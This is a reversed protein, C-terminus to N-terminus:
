EGLREECTLSIRLRGGAEAMTCSAPCLTLERPDEPDDLVYGNGDCAGDDGAITHSTGNPSEYVVSISDAIAIEDELLDANAQEFPRELAAVIDEQLEAPLTESSEVKNDISTVAVSLIVTGIVATGLFMPICIWM